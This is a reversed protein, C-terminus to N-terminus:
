VTCGSDGQLIFVSGPWKQEIHLYTDAFFFSCSWKQLLKKKRKKTYQLANNKIVIM